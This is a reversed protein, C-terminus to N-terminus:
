LILTNGVFLVLFISYNRSLKNVIEVFGECLAVLALNSFNKRSNSSYEVAIITTIISLPQSM